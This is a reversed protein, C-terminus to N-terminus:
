LERQEAELEQLECEPVEPFTPEVLRRSAFPWYTEDGQLAVWAVMLLHELVEFAEGMAEVVPVLPPEVQLQPVPSM